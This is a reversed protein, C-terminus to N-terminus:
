KFQYSPILKAELPRFPYYNKLSEEIASDYQWDNDLFCWDMLYDEQEKVFTIGICHRIKQDYKAAYTLNHLWILRHDKQEHQLPIFVFGCSTEPVVIRYPLEFEDSDCAELCLKIRTKVEQLNTRRLKAFEGIISYYAYESNKENSNIYEIRQSFNELIGSISFNDRDNILRYLYELFKKSPPFNADEGSLFQGVIAGEPLNEANHTHKILLDQRYIFYDGIERPTLLKQCINLYDNGSVIHVFGAEQSSLYYKKNKYYEPLLKNSLHIIIKIFIKIQNFKMNFIHGRQNPIIIEDEYKKFYVVIDRIQNKAKQLIKKEFWQKESNVSSKEGTREKVQYVIMLDDLWIVHDALELESSGKPTFNNKSFSFEKLFINANLEAILEELNM